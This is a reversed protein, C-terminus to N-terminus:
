LLKKKETKFYYNILMKAKEFPVKGLTVNLGKNQYVSAIDLIESYMKEQITLKELPLTKADRILQHKRSDTLLKLEKGNAYLIPYCSYLTFQTIVPKVFPGQANTNNEGSAMVIDLTKINKKEIMDQFEVENKPSNFLKYQWSTM